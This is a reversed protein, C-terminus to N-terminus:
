FLFTNTINSCGPFSLITKFHTLLGNLDWGTPWSSNLVPALLVGPWKSPVTASAPSTHSQHFGPRASPMEASATAGQEEVSSDGRQLQRAECGGARDWLWSVAAGAGVSWRRMVANGYAATGSCKEVAWWGVVFCAFTLLACRWLPLPQYPWRCPLTGKIPSTNALFFNWHALLPATPRSELIM